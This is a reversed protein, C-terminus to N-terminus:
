SYLANQKEIEESVLLWQLRQELEMSCITIITSQPLENFQQIEPEDDPSVSLQLKEPKPVRIIKRGKAVDILEKETLSDLIPIGIM